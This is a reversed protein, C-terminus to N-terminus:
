GGELGRTKAIDTLEDEVYVAQVLSGEFDHIHVVSWESPSSPKLPTIVQDVPLLYMNTTYIQELFLRIEAAVNSCGDLADIVIILTDTVPESIYRFPGSLLRKLQNGLSPLQHNTELAEALASAIQPCSRALQRAITPIIHVRCSLSYLLLESGTPRKTTTARLLQLTKGTGAM